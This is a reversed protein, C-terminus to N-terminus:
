ELGAAADFIAEVAERADATVLRWCSCAMVIRLLGPLWEGGHEVFNFSNNALEILAEARSIPVITTAQGIGYSPYVLMGPAAAEGWPDPRLDSAPVMEAPGEATDWYGLANQSRPSLSLPKRYPEMLLSSFDISVAEDSLYDCGSAVLAATLTSKGSRSPAPLVLGRRGLTVAGAHVTLRDPRSEVARQNLDSVLSVLGVAAPVPGAIQEGDREIRLLAQDDGRDVRTLRYKHEATPGEAPDVRLGELARSITPGLAEVDAAELDVEFSFGFARYKGIPLYSISPITGTV